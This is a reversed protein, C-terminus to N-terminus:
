REILKQLTSFVTELSSNKYSQELKEHFHQRELNNNYLLGQVVTGSRATEIVSQVFILKWKKCFWKHLSPSLRNWEEQLSELKAHFDDFDTSDALGYEQVRGYRCSYIDAIIAGKQHDLNSIKQKSRSGLSRRMVIFESKTFCFNAIEQDTGIIRLDRINTNHAYM